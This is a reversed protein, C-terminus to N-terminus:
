KILNLLDACKELKCAVRRGNGFDCRVTTNGYGYAVLGSLVKNISCRNLCEASEFHTGNWGIPKTALSALYAKAELSMNCEFAIKVSTSKSEKGLTLAHVFPKVRLCYPHIKVGNAQSPVQWTAHASKGCCKCVGTSNGINVSNTIAVGSNVKRGTNRVEKIM